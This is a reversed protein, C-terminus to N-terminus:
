AAEQDDDPIAGSDDNSAVRKGFPNNTPPLPGPAPQERQQGYPNGPVAPMTASLRTRKGFPNNTPPLPGPMPQDRQQGYPNGPVAPMSSAMDQEGGGLGHLKRGYSLANDVTAIAANIRQQFHDMHDPTQTDDGGPTADGDGDDDTVLGGDAFGTPTFNFGSPGTTYKGPLRSGGPGGTMASEYANYGSLQSDSLPKYSLGNPGSSYVGPTPNGSADGIKGATYDYAGGM